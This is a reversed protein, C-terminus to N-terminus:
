KRLPFEFTSGRSGDPRIATATWAENEHGGIEISARYWGAAVAPDSNERGDSKWIEGWVRESDFQVGRLVASGYPGGANVDIVKRV